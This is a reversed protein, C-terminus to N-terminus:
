PKPLQDLFLYRPRTQDIEASSEVDIHMVQVNDGSMAPWQPLGPGNPDFSKIFNAFYNQM